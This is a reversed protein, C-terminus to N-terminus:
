LAVSQAQGCSVIWVMVVRNMSSSWVTSVPPWDTKILAEKNEIGRAGTAFIVNQLEACNTLGHLSVSMRGTFAHLM